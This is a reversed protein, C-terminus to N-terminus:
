DWSRSCRPSDTIAAIRRTGLVEITSDCFPRHDPLFTQEGATLLGEAPIGLTHVPRADCPFEAHRPQDQALTDPGHTAFSRAMMSIRACRNEDASRGMMALRTVLAWIRRRSREGDRRGRASRPSSWVALNPSLSTDAKGWSLRQEHSM